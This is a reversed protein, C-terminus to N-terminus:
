DFEHNGLTALDYGTANMLKIITAGKDMSGYATGQIHDGADVLLVDKTADKLTAIQSYTVGNSGDIYTHVDNTYLVTIGNSDATSEAASVTAGAGLVLTAALLLSLSKKFRM